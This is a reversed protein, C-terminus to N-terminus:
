DRSRGGFFRLLYLFLNVFDLYLTLAGLIGIRHSSLAGSRAMNRINQADFMTLGSFILIGAFTIIMDLGTSHWFINVFIGIILGWLAMGCLHGMSSLDGKTFTGWLALGGFMGATVFFVKEVVVTEYALLVVSLTLGNVAAYAAFLLYALVTPLKSIAASLTFVLALEVLICITMGGRTLIQAYLGSQATYRAVIASIALGVCMWGYVLRFVSAVATTETSRTAYAPRGFQKEFDIM